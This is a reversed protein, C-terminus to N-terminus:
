NFLKVRALAWLATPRLLRWWNRKVQLAPSMLKFKKYSQVMVDFSVQTDEGSSPFHEPSELTNELLAIIPQISQIFRQDKVTSPKKGIAPNKSISHANWFDDLRNEHHFTAIMQSQWGQMPSFGQNTLQKKRSVRSALRNKSLFPFHAVELQDTLIENAPNPSLLTHAGTALWIEPINGRFIVKSNFPIDYFNLKGRVIEDHMTKSWLNAYHKNALSRDELRLYQSLQNEDFDNQSVWNKLEYRVAICQSDVESLIKKLSQHAPCLLFEDADLVWIWDPSAAKSIEILANTQAEQYYENKFYDILHLRDGWLKKLARTQAFGQNDRFHNLLFVEDVHYHLAHSISLALLPGENYAQILGIVKPENQM